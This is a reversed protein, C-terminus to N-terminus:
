GECSGEVHLTFFGPCPPALRRALDQMSRAMLCDPHEGAVFARTYAAQPCSAGADLQGVELFARRRVMWPGQSAVPATAAASSSSSGHPPSSPGLSLLAM